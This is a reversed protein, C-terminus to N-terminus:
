RSETRVTRIARQELEPEYLYFALVDGPRAANVIRRVQARPGEAGEERDRQRQRHGSKDHRHDPLDRLDPVLEQERDRDGPVGGPLRHLHRELVEGAALDHLPVHLHGPRQQGSQRGQDDVDEQSAVEQPSEEGPSELPLNTLWGQFAM